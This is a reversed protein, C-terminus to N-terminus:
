PDRKLASASEVAARQFGVMSRKLNQKTTPHLKKARAWSLRCFNPTPSCLQKIPFSSSRYRHDAPLFIKGPPRDSSATPPTEIGIM